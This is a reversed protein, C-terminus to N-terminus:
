SGEGRGAGADALAAVRKELRRLRALMAPLEKFLTAARLWAAHEIAPSGALRSGPPQDRMVISATAVQSGEGLEVHNIVGAKGALVSRDGIRASGAAASYAAMLVHAGVRAGHGVQVLNDLKAGEGVETAAMAARDVTSNAGIEVDPGIRATGVQPIKVNGEATPAFGFGEGGVVVGPNLVVRDGLECDPRVVSHAMLHCDAGVRADEGVYAAAEVWTRAGVAARPGIWAFAEVTASPDVEASEDIAARPDVGPEPREAPHFIALARAFAAYPDALRIVTRGGADVEPRVLVAGARTTALQRAYKPNALFSLHEAEAEELGRVDELLAAGDGEVEGGLREALEAATFPGATV